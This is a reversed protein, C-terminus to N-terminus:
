FVRWKASGGFERVCFRRRDSILAAHPALLFTRVCVRGRGRDCGCGDDFAAVALRFHTLSFFYERTDDVLLHAARSSAAHLRHRTRIVIIRAAFTTGCCFLLRFGGSIQARALRHTATATTATTMTAMPVM